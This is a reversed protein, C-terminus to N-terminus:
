SRGSGVGRAILAAGIAFGLAHEASALGSSTWLTATFGVGAAAAVAVAVGRSRAAVALAGAVGALIVSVGYDAQDAVGEVLSRDVLWLVAVGAYAVLTAGVHASLAVVWTPGTGLWRVATVLALTLLALQAWPLGDIVLGSTLLLWLQGDAIQEPSSAVDATAPWGTLQVLALGAVFLVVSPM